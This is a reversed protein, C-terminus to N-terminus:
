GSDYNLFVGFSDSPGCGACERPFASCIAAAPATLGIACLMAKGAGGFV